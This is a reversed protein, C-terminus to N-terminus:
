GNQSTKDWSIHTSTANDEVSSKNQWLLMDQILVVVETLTLVCM